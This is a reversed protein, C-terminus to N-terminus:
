CYLGVTPGSQDKGTNEKKKEKDYMYKYTLRRAFLSMDKVLEFSLGLPLVQTDAQSLIETSLNIIQLQEIDIQGQICVM